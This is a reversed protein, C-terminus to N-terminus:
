YSRTRIIGVGHDESWSPYPLELVGDPLVRGYLYDLTLHDISNPALDSIYESIKSYDFLEGKQQDFTMEKIYTCSNGGDVAVFRYHKIYWSRGEEVQGRNSMLAYGKIYSEPDWGKVREGSFLAPVTDKLDGHYDLYALPRDRDCADRVGRQFSAIGGPTRYVQLKNLLDMRAVTESGGKGVWDEIWLDDHTENNDWAQVIRAATEADMGFPRIILPKM